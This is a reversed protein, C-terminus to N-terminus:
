YDAVWIVAVTIICKLNWDEQQVVIEVWQRGVSLSAKGVDFFESYFSSSSLSIKPPVIPSFTVKEQCASAKNCFAVWLM